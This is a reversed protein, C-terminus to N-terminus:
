TSAQLGEPQVPGLVQKIVYSGLNSPRNLTTSNIADVIEQRRVPQDPKSHQKFLMLRM